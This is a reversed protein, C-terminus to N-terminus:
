NVAFRARALALQHIEEQAPARYFLARNLADIAKGGFPINRERRPLMKQLVKPIHRVAVFNQQGDGDHRPQFRSERQRIRLAQGDAGAARNALQIIPQHSGHERQQVREFLQARQQDYKFVDVPHIIFAQAQQVAQNVARAAGGNQQGAAIVAAAAHAGRQALDGFGISNTGDCQVRQRLFLHARQERSPQPFRVRITQGFGKVAIRAAIQMQQAFQDARVFGGGSAGRLRRFSHEKSIQLPKRLM